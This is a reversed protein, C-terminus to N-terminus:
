LIDSLILMDDIGADIMGNGLKASNPQDGYQNLQNSQRRPKNAFM